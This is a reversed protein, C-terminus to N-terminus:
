AYMIIKIRIINHATQFISQMLKTGFAFEFFSSFHSVFCKLRRDSRRVVKRIFVGPPLLNSFMLEPLVRGADIYSFVSM